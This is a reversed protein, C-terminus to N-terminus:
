RDIREYISDITNRILYIPLHTSAGYIIDTSQAYHLIEPNDQLLHAFKYPDHELLTLAEHWTLPNHSYYITKIKERILWINVLGEDPMGDFMDDYLTTIGTNDVEVHHIITTDISTGDMHLGNWETLIMIKDVARSPSSTNWMIDMLHYYCMPIPNCATPAPSLIYIPDVDSSSFSYTYSGELPLQSREQNQNESSEEPDFGILRYNRAIHCVSEGQKDEFCCSDQIRIGMKDSLMITNSEGVQTQHTRMCVGSPYDVFSYHAFADDKVKLLDIVSGSERINLSSSKEIAKNRSINNPENNTQCATIFATALMMIAIKTKM